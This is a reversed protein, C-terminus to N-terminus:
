EIKDGGEAAVRTTDVEQTNAAPGEIAVARDIWGDGRLTSLTKRVVPSNIAKPDVEYISQM